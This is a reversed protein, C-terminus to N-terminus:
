GFATVREAAIVSLREDDAPQISAAEVAPAPHPAPAFFGYASVVKELEECYRDYDPNGPRIFGLQPIEDVVRSLVIPASAPIFQTGSSSSPTMILGRASERGDSRSVMILRLAGKEVTVFSMFPRGDPIYVRGTQLHGADVRDQEEFVLCSATEDWRVVILYSNIVDSSTFAPRFRGRPLASAFQQDRDAPIASDCRDATQTTKPLSSSRSERLRL